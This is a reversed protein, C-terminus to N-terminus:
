LSVCSCALHQCRCAPKGRGLAPRVERHRSL